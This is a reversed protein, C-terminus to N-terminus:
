SDTNRERRVGERKKRKVRREEMCNKKKMENGEGM